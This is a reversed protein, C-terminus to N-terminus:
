SRPDDIDIRRSEDPQTAIAITIARPPLLAGAREPWEILCVGEQMAEDWGLELVEDPSELRYLDFHYLPAGATEYQQVLTFTPSPVEIPGLLAHIFGRAFVSKGAGLDGRLAFIDGAGASRALISAIAATEAESSTIHTGSQAM